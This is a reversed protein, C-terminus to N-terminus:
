QQEWLKIGLAKSEKAEQELKGIYTAFATEIVDRPDEWIAETEQTTIREFATPVLDKVQDGYKIQVAYRGTTGDPVLSFEYAGKKFNHLAYKVRDGFEGYTDNVDTVLGTIAEPTFIPNSDGNVSVPHDIDFKHNGLNIPKALEGQRADYKYRQVTFVDAINPPLDNIAIRKKITKYPKEDKDDGKNPVRHKVIAIGTIQNDKFEQEVTINNKFKSEMIGAAAKLADYAPNDSTYHIRHSSAMKGETAAYASSLKRDINDFGDSILWDAGVNTGYRDIRFNKAREKSRDRSKESWEVEGHVAEYLDMDRMHLDRKTFESLWFDKYGNIVSHSNKLRKGETTVVTKDIHKRVDPPLESLLSDLYDKAARRESSTLSGDNYLHLAEYLDLTARGEETQPGDKKKILYAYNHHGEKFKMYQYHLKGDKGKTLKFNFNPLSDYLSINSGWRGAGRLRRETAKLISKVGDVIVETERDKNRLRDKFDMLTDFNDSVSLRKGGVEIYAKGSMNDLQDRFEKSGLLSPDLDNDEFMKKARRYSDDRNKYINIMSNRLGEKTDIEVGEGIFRGAEGTGGVVRDSGSGSGSGSRSGSNQAKLLAINEMVQNHRATEAQNQLKLEFEVNAKQVEDIKREVLRPGYAYMDTIGSMYENTYLTTYAAERGNQSVVAEFNNAELLDIDQQLQDIVDQIAEKDESTKASSLASKAADLREKNIDLRPEYFNNFAEKLDEDPMSDYTGWANIKMQQKDQDTFLLDLAGMIDQRSVEEYTESYAFKGTNPGSPVWRVKKGTGEEITKQIDPLNELVKKGLDVYEIVGGGGTYKAGVAEEQLWDNAYRNAYAHNVQSYKEPSEDKLKKWAAQEARYLKTSTVANLVKGDVTERLKSVLQRSLNADSLDMSAYQDVVSKAAQLRGEAYDKDQDKAIDLFDLTDYVRDLVARNADLRGQKSQMVTAILETNPKYLEQTYNHLITYANM